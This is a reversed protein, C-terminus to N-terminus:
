PISPATMFRTAQDLTCGVASIEDYASLHWQLTGTFPEALYEPDELLIDIDIRTGDESLEYREVVRKQAGSPLGTGPMTSRNDAFQVTEVELVSGDLTGISHGQPTRQGNEPHGRGDTYIIREVDLFESHITIRDDFITIENLYQPLSVIMPSPYAICQAAPNEQRIDYSERATTGKPTTSVHLGSERFVEFDDLGQEWIGALTNRPSVAPLDSTDGSVPTLITGDAKELSIMLAHARDALRDPNALVSVRDGVSLSDRTWGNRLLIPVADTELQWEATGGAADTAEVFFYVHPNTWDVRTVRGDLVVVSGMDFIIPSHHASLPTAVLCSLFVLEALRIKLAPRM